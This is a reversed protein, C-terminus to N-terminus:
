ITAGLKHIKYFYVVYTGYVLVSNKCGSYLKGVSHKEKKKEITAALDCYILVDDFLPIHNIICLLFNSHRKKRNDRKNRNHKGEVLGEM